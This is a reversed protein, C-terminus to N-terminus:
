RLKAVFRARRKTGNVRAPVIFNGLVGWPTITVRVHSRTVCIPARGGLNGGELRKHREHSEPPRPREDKMQPMADSFQM